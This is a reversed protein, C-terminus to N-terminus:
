SIVHVLRCLSMETIALLYVYYQELGLVHVCVDGRWFNRLVICDLTIFAHLGVIDEIVFM